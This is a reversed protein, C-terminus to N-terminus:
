RWEGGHLRDDVYTSHMGRARMTCFARCSVVDNMVGNMVSGVVHSMTIDASDVEEMPDHQPCADIGTTLHCNNALGIHIPQLKLKAPDQGSACSKSTYNKTFTSRSPNRFHLENHIAM